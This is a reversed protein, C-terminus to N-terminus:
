AAILLTADIGIAEMNAPVWPNIPITEAGGSPTAGVPARNPTMSQFM